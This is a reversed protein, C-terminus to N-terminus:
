RNKRRLDECPWMDVVKVVTEDQMRSVFRDGVRDIWWKDKEAQTKGETVLNGALLTPKNYHTRHGLLDQLTEALFFHPDRAAFVEDIILYEADRLRRMHEHQQDLNERFGFVFDAWIVYVVPDGREIIKAAAGESLHTKGVGAGGLLVLFPPGSGASWQVISRLAIEAAKRGDRSGQRITNFTDIRKVDIGGFGASKFLGATKAAEAEAVTTATCDPCPIMKGFMPQNLTPKRGNVDLYPMWRLDECTKCALGYYEQKEDQTWSWDIPAGKIGSDLGRSTQAQQSTLVASDIGAVSRLVESLHKPQDQEM